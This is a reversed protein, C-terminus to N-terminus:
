MTGDELLPFWSRCCRESEAFPSTCSQKVAPEAAKKKAKPADERRCMLAAAYCNRRLWNVPRLNAPTLKLLPSGSHSIWSLVRPLLGWIRTLLGLVRTLLRALLLAAALFRALLSLAGALSM